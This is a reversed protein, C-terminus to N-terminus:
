PQIVTRALAHSTVHVIDVLGMLVVSLKFWPSVAFATIIIGSITVGILMINIRRVCEGFSAILVSSILAGFGTAGVHLLDHAFVPLLTM